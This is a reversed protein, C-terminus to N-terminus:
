ARAVVGVSRLAAELGAVPDAERRWRSLVRASASRRRDIDGAVELMAGALGEVDFPEVLAGNGEPGPEVLEPAAGVIRSSIVALGAALAENLVLAWAEYRSPLVMCDCGRYIEALEGQDAIFGLFRVRSEPLGGAAAEWEGRMPGDGVILLDWGPLRDAVRAFAAIADGFRKLEILRASCVFRRRDSTLGHRRRVSRERAPDPREYLAYDPENPCYWIRERPLGYREMYARGLSACPLGGSLRSFLRRLYATKLRRKVGAARDGHINSDSWLFVPTGRAHCWLIAAVSPAYVYGGVVVAAPRHEDLWRRVGRAKVWQRWARVGPSAGAFRADGLRVPGVDPTPEVAWGAAPADFHVLTRLSLGTLERAVRRHFHLRYPALEGALIALIPRGGQGAPHNV